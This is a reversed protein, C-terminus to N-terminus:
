ALKKAKDPPHSSCYWHQGTTMNTRKGCTVWPIPGHVRWSAECTGYPLEPTFQKDDIGFLRKLWGIM